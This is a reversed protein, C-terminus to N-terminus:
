EGVTVPVPYPNRLGGRPRQFKDITEGTVWANWVRIVLYLHFATLTNDRQSSTTIARDSLMRDRLRTIVDDKAYQSGISLVSFFNRVVTEPAYQNLLWWAFAKNAPSLPIRPYDRVAQIAEHIAKADERYADALDMRLVRSPRGGIPSLGGYNQWRMIKRQVAEITSGGVIGNMALDDRFSRRRHDDITPRTEPTLGKVVWLWVPQGARVVAAYRHQGDVIEGNTDYTVTQGNALWKGAVIKQALAEVEVPNLTRNMNNHLDLEDTAMAPTVHVLEATQHPKSM